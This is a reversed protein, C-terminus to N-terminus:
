RPHEARRAVREGQLEHQQVSERDAEREDREVDQADLLARAVEAREVKARETAVSSRRMVSTTPSCKPMQPTTTASTTTM